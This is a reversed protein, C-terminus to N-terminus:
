VHAVSTCLCCVRVNVEVSQTSTVGYFGFDGSRVFYWLCMVIDTRRIAQPFRTFSATATLSDAVCICASPFRKLVGM